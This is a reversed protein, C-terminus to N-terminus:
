RGIQCGLEQEATVDNAGEEGEDRAALSVQEM